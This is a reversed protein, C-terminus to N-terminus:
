KRYLGGSDFLHPLTLVQAVVGAFGALSQRVEEPAGASRKVVEGALASVLGATGDGAIPLAKREAKVRVAHGVATGDLGTRHQIPEGESAFGDVAMRPLLHQRHRPGGPSPTLKVAVAVSSRWGQAVISRRTEALSVASVSIAPQDSAPLQQVEDVSLGLAM